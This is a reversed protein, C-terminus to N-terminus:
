APLVAHRQRRRRVTRDADPIDDAAFLALQDVACRWRSVRRPDLMERVVEVDADCGPLVGAIDALRLRLAQSAFQLRLVGAALHDRDSRPRATPNNNLQEAV